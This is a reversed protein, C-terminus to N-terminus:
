RYMVVPFVMAKVIPICMRTRLVQLYTVQGPLLAKAPTVPNFVQPHFLIGSPGHSDLTM